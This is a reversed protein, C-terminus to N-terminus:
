RAQGGITTDTDGFCIAETGRWIRDADVKNPAVREARLFAKHARENAYETAKGAPWGVTWRRLFYLYFPPSESKGPHGIYTRAGLSLWTGSQSADTCGTNYVLRLRATLPRDLEGVWAVYDNTHALLFIDVAEYRELLRQLCDQFAEKEDRASGQTFYCSRGYYRGLYPRTFIKTGWKQFAPVDDRIALAARREAGAPAGLRWFPREALWAVLAFTAAILVVTALLAATRRSWRPRREAEGADSM